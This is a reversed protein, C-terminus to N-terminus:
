NMIEKLRLNFEEDDLYWVKVKDLLAQAKELQRAAVYCEAAQIVSHKFISVDSDSWHALNEILNIEQDCKDLMVKAGTKDGSRFKVSAILLNAGTPNLTVKAYQQAWGSAKKYDEASLDNLLREEISAQFEYIFDDNEKFCTSDRDLKFAKALSKSADKYANEFGETISGSLSIKYFAKAMWMYPEADKKNEEKLSYKEATVVVKEYKADAFLIVLDDYKADEQSFTFTSFFLCLFVYLTNKM